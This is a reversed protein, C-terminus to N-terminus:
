GVESIGKLLLHTEEDVEDQTLIKNELAYLMTKKFVTMINSSCGIPNLIGAYLHYKGSTLLNFSAHSILNHAIEIYNTENNFTALEEKQCNIMDRIENEMDPKCSPVIQPNCKEYKDILCTCTEILKKRNKRITIAKILSM